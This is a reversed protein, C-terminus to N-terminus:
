LVPLFGGVQRLDSFFKIVFHQILYAEGNYIVMWPENMEHKSEFSKTVQSFFLKFFNKLYSRQYGILVFNIKKEPVGNKEVLLVSQWSIVSINNFTANFVVVRVRLDIIDTVVLCQNVNTVQAFFLKFFNKLYSRQYGILVFNLSFMWHNNMCLEMEIKQSCNKILIGM